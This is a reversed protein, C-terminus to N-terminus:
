LDYQERLCGLAAFFLDDPVDTYHRDKISTAAHGLFYDAFRTHDKHSELLNATTKRIIKLPKRIGSKEILRRYNSVIKDTKSLRGDTGRLL